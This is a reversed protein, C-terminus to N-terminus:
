AEEGKPRGAIILRIQSLQPKLQAVADVLFELGKYPAINGFFLLVQDSPLLGLLKRADNGTIDTNPVTSNIGFPIVGIKEPAIDFAEQLERKMQETHVFLHECARYQMRLTLRNLASDNGDRKRVNVNHVTMVLRRGCARYYLLLLTRDFTEFKNNWLIHFVRPEAVLAYRLLRLYYTLVRVLKRAPHAD